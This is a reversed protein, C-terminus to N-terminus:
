FLQHNNYTCFIFIFFGELGEQLVNQEVLRQHVEQKGKFARMFLHIKTLCCCCCQKIQFSNFWDIVLNSIFCSGVFPTQKWLIVNGSRYIHYSYLNKVQKIDRCHEKHKVALMPGPLLVQIGLSNLQLHVFLSPLCLDFSTLLINTNMYSSASTLHFARWMPWSCGMPNLGWDWRWLNIWNERERLCVSTKKEAGEM